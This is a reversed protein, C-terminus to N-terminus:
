RTTASGMGSDGPTLHQDLDSATRLAQAHRPRLVHDYGHDVLLSHGNALAGTSTM